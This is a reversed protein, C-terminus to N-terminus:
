PSHALRNASDDVNACAPDKVRTRRERSADLNGRVGTRSAQDVEGPGVFEFDLAIATDSERVETWSRSSIRTGASGESLNGGGVPCGLSMSASPSLARLAPTVVITSAASFPSSGVM